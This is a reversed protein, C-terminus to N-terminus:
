ARQFTSCCCFSSSHSIQPSPPSRSQQSPQVDLVGYIIPSYRISIAVRQQQMCWDGAEGAGTEQVLRCWDGAERMCWDGAEGAGTEQREHVLRMGRQM